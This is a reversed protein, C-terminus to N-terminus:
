TIHFVENLTRARKEKKTIWFMEQKQGQEFFGCHINMVVSIM